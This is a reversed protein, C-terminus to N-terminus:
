GEGGGRLLASKLFFVGEVVVEEGPEVGTVVEYRTGNFLGIEVARAEFSEASLRVFVHDASGIRIVASEPVSLAQRVEGRVLVGEVFTGPVLSTRSEVIEARVTMTRTSPDVRPIPTIVRARGALGPHGVPAFDVTDGTRISPFDTPPVEVELELSAPDGVVLLPDFGETWDHRQVALDLVVGAMPSRLTMRGDPLRSDLLLKVDSQLYGLDELEHLSQEYDIAAALARQERAELEIRSIGELELLQRGAEVRSDALRKEERLRLVQGELEHLEHSYVELLPEGQRVPDGPAVLIRLVRTQLRTKVTATTGPSRVIEGFVRMQEGFSRELVPRVVIGARSQAVADLTVREGGAAPLALAGSLLLFIWPRPRM